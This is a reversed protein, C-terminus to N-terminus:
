ASQREESLLGKVEAILFYVKDGIYWKKLKGNNVLSYIFYRSCGLEKKLQNFSIIGLVPNAQEENEDNFNVNM